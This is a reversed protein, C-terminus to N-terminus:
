DAETSRRHHQRKYVDLHTYSVSEYDDEMLALAKDENDKWFPDEMRGNSLLDGYVSGPVSAPLREQEGVRRMTWGTHLTQELM